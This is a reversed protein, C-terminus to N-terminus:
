VVGSRLKQLQEKAKQQLEQHTTYGPFDPEKTLQIVKEFDQIAKQKDGKAAYALGREYYTRAYYGANKIEQTYDAIAADYNGLEMYIAARLTLVVPYEPQIQLLRTYDAIAKQYEGKAAYASGRDLYPSLLAKKPDLQLAQTADAITQDYNEKGLNAGARVAYAWAIEHKFQTANQNLQLFQNIDSIARDYDIYRPDTSTAEARLLYAEAYDPKLLIAQTFDKIAEAYYATGRYFQAKGSGFLADPNNPKLALSGEFRYFATRYDGAELAAFGKKLLDEAYDPKLQLARDFNARAKEANGNELEAIGENFHDEATKPNSSNSQAVTMQCRDCGRESAMATAFQQMAMLLGGALLSSSLGQFVTRAWKRNQSSMIHTAIAGSM